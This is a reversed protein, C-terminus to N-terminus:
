WKSDRSEDHTRICAIMLQDKYIIKGARIDERIHAPEQGNLYNDVTGRLNNLKALGLWLTAKSGKIQFDYNQQM